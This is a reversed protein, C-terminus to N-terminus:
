GPLRKKTRRLEQIRRSTNEIFRRNRKLDEESLSEDFNSKDALFAQLKLEMKDALFAQLKLEMKDVRKM